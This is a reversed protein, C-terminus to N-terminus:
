QSGDDKDPSVIEGGQIVEHLGQPRLREEGDGDVCQYDMVGSPGHRGGTDCTVDLAHSPPPEYSGCASLTMALSLSILIKGIM